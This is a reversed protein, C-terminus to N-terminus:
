PKSSYRWLTALPVERGRGRRRAMLMSPMGATSTLKTRDTVQATSHPATSIDTSWLWSVAHVAEVRPLLRRIAELANLQEETLPGTLTGRLLTMTLGM